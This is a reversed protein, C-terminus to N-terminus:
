KSKGFKVIIQLIDVKYLYYKYIYWIKIYILQQFLSNDNLHSIKGSSEANNDRGSSNNKRKRIPRSSGVGSCSAM